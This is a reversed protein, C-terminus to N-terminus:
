SMSFATGSYRKLRQDTMANSRRAESMDRSYDIEHNMASCLANREAM